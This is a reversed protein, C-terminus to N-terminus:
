SIKKRNHGYGTNETSQTHTPSRASYEIQNTFISIQCNKITEESIKQLVVLQRIWYLQSIAMLIGKHTCTHPNTLKKINCANKNTPKTTTGTTEIYTPTQSIATSISILV